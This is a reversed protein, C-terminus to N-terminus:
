EGARNLAMAHHDTKDVDIGIFVDIPEHDKIM